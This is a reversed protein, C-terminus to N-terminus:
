LWTGDHQERAMEHTEGESFFHKYTNYLLEFEEKWSEKLIDKDSPWKRKDFMAMAKLVPDDLVKQFRNILHRDLADIITKRDEALKTAGDDKDILQCTYYMNAGEVKEIVDYIGQSVHLKPHCLRTLHHDTTIESM